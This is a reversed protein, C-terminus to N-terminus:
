EKDEYGTEKKDNEKICGSQIERHIRERDARHKLVISINWYLLISLIICMSLWFALRDDEQETM